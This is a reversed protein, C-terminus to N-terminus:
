QEGPGEGIFMVDANKPGVGFVVNSRTQCLGCRTCQLCNLELEEWTLM